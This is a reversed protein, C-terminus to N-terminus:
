WDDWIGTSKGINVVYNQQIGQYHLKPQCYVHSDVKEKSDHLSLNATQDTLADGSVFYSRATDPASTNTMAPYVSHLLHNRATQGM